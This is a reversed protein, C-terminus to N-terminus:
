HIKLKALSSQCKQLINLQRNFKAFILSSVYKSDEPHVTFISIGIRLVLPTIAFILETAPFDGSIIVKEKYEELNKVDEGLMTEYPVKNITQKPYKTLYNLVM